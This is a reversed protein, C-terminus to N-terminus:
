SILRTLQMDLDRLTGLRRIVHDRPLEIDENAVAGGMWIETNDNLGKEVSRVYEFFNERKKKDMTQAMGIVTVAAGLSNSTKVLAEVPLNPGLYYVPLHHSACLIASILIGFEHFDGEPSALTVLNSPTGDHFVPSLNKQLSYLLGGLDHRLIGSLAHEHSVDLRGNHCDEGVKQLLPSIIRLLYDKTTVQHKIFELERHIGTLDFSFLKSRLDEVTKEYFDSHGEQGSQDDFKRVLDQLEETTLNAVRGISHGHGVLMNLLKLRFIERQGYVRRGTNTREPTVAQYRKEWARLTHASIGTISSVAKVGLNQM